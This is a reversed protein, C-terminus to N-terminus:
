LIAKKLRESEPEQNEDLEYFLENFTNKAKPDVIGLTLFLYVELHMKCMEELCRENWRHPAHTENDFKKYFQCLYWKGEHEKRLYTQLETRYGGNKTLILPYITKDM